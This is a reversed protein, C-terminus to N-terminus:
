RNAHSVKKAPKKGTGRSKKAPKKGASRGAECAKAQVAALKAPKKAQVAALKPKVPAGIADIAEALAADPFASSLFRPLSEARSRPPQACTRVAPEHSSSEVGRSRCGRYNNPGCSRM